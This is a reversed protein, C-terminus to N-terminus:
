PSRAASVSSRRGLAGALAISIMLGACLFYLLNLGLVPLLVYALLPGVASGLDAANALWGLNRGRVSPPSLDGVLGSTAPGLVAMSLSSLVGNLLLAPLSGAILVVFSAGGFLAGWDLLRWRGVRDSM